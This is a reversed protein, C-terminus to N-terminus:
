AAEKDLLKWLDQRRDSDSRRQNQESGFQKESGSNQRGSGHNMDFESKASNSPTEVKMDSVNVGSSALHSFLDKSNQQFFNKGDMSHTGINIAVADSNLTGSKQVTIDIMGLEDHNMRMTVTPEKSAKAQVIYDSIQNMIQDANTSKVNSMDFVKGAAATEAVKATGNESKMNLIFQQSNMPQSQLGETANLDKVVQSQKLGNELALKHQQPNKAGYANVNVPKKMMNKQAVFDEMSMLKPDAAVEAEGKVAANKANKGLAQALETQLDGEALPAAAVLGAAAMEPVEGNALKLVEADTMKPVAGLSKPKNAKEVDMTMEPDFITPQLPDSELANPNVLKSPKELKQEESVKVEKVKPESSDQEAGAAKLESEFDDSDKKKEVSSPKKSYDSKPASSVSSPKPLEAKPAKPEIPKNYASQIM